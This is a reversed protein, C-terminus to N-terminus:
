SNQAARASTSLPINIGTGICVSSFTRPGNCPIFFSMIESSLVGCLFELLVNQMKNLFILAATQLVLKLRQKPLVRSLHIFPKTDERLVAHFRNCDLLTFSLVSVIVGKLRHRAMELSSSLSTQKHPLGSRSQSLPVQM